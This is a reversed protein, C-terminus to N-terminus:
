AAVFKRVDSIVLDTRMDNTVVTFFLSVIWGVSM